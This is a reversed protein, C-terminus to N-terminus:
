GPSASRAAAAPGQAGSVLRGGGSARAPDFLELAPLARQRARRAPLLTALVARGIVELDDLRAQYSGDPLHTTVAPNRTAKARALLMAGTGAVEALFANADFGGDLLVLM